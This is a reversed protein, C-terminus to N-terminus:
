RPNFALGYVRCGACHVRWVWLSRLPTLAGSGVYLTLWSLPRRVPRLGKKIVSCLRLRTIFPRASSVTFGPLGSSPYIAEPGNVMEPWPAMWQRKSRKLDGLIEIEVFIM